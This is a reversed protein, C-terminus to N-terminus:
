PPCIKNAFRMTKGHWFTRLKIMVHHQAIHLVYRDADNSTGYHTLNQSKKNIKKKDPVLHSRTPLDWHGVHSPPWQVGPVTQRDNQPDPNLPTGPRIRIRMRLGSLDPHERKFALPKKHLKSMLLNCNKILFLYLFIETTPKKKMKQDYFKTM